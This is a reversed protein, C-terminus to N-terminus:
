EGLRRGGTEGSDSFGLAEEGDEDDEDDDEDDREGGDGAFSATTSDSRFALLGVSGTRSNLSPVRDDHFNARSAGLNDSSLLAM